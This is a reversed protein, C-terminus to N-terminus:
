KEVSQSVFRNLKEAEELVEATEPAHVLPISADSSGAYESASKAMAQTNLIDYALRLLDLRIEYPTKGSKM